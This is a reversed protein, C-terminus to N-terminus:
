PRNSFQGRDFNLFNHIVWKFNEFLHLSRVLTIKKM